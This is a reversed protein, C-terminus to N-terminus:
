SVRAVAPVARAGSVRTAFDSAAAIAAYYQAKRDTPPAAAPTPERDEFQANIGDRLLKIAEARLQSVRSITVGLEDAIEKMPRDEFFYEVVVKRLRDPLTQVADLLYGRMEASLLQQIPDASPVDALSDGGGSGPEFADLHLVTSRRVDDRIREVDDAGVGLEKALETTEPSRGLRGTLEETVLQLRRGDQRASRSAWDRSRLEDLLAGEIRRRAFHEFSVGREPDWMKAAQALGLLGASVLDDHRVHRPVRAAVSSVCYGVLPM